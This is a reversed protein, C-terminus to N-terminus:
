GAPNCASIPGITDGNKAIVAAVICIQYSPFYPEVRKVRQQPVAFGNNSFTASDLFNGTNDNLFCDIRTFVNNAAGFDSVANSAAGINAVIQMTNKNVSGVSFQCRAHWDGDRVAVSRGQPIPLSGGSASAAGTGVVLSGATVFVAVAAFM